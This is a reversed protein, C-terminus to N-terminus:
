KGQFKLYSKLENLQPVTFINEDFVVQDAKTTSVLEKVAPYEFDIRGFELSRVNKLKALERALNIDLKIHRLGLSAFDRQKALIACTNATVSDGEILLTRLKGSQVLISLTKDMPGCEVPSFYQLRQLLAKYKHANEDFTTMGNIKLQLVEKYGDQWNCDDLAKQDLNTFTLKTLGKWSKAIKLVQSFGKVITRREEEEDAVKQMIPTQNLHLEYVLGPPIKEYIEPYHLATPGTQNSIILTFASPDAVVVKGKALITHKEVNGIAGISTEPFYITKGLGHDSKFTQCVIKKTNKLIEISGPEEPDDFMGLIKDSDFTSTPVALVPRNDKFVKTSPEETKKLITTAILVTAAGVLLLSIGAILKISLMKGAQREGVIFSNQESGSGTSKAASGINRGTLIRELDHIVQAMDNYRRERSKELMHSLLEDLSDPLNREPARELVSPIPASQHLMITHTASPGKYPPSGCFSEFMSCGLSYIDTREDCKAGISQEPSMYLPSGFVTGTQTQSHDSIASSMSIKAIGFDVIRASLRGGSRTVMINSPKIDRHIIGKNHAYDLGEAVQRYINLTEEISLNLGEDLYDALSKGTLLDMVYYPAQGRDMGMNHVKVISPHDMRAITRGEMSFRRLTETDLAQPSLVKVAYEKKLSVHEVAFVAGMGGEGLKSKILYTEDIVYGPQYKGQM